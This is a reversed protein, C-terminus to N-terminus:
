KFYFDLEVFCKVSLGVLVFGHVPYGFKDLRNATDVGALLM